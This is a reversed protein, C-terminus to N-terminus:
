GAYWKQHPGGNCQWIQLPVGNATDGDVVDVCRDVRVNVLDGAANLTFVQEWGGDCAATRLRSGDDEGTVELCRGLTRLRGDAALEFTQGATGNCDWMQIARGASTDGGPVDVCKGSGANVIARGTFVPPPGDVAAAGTAPAPKSTAPAAIETTQPRPAGAGAGDTAPVPSASGVATGTAAPTPAPRSGGPGAWVPAGVAPEEAGGDDGTSEGALLPRALLCGILVLLLPILILITLRGRGAHPGILWDALGRGAAPAAPAQEFRSRAPRAAPGASTGAGATTSSGTGGTDLGRFGFSGEVGPIASGPAATAPASASAEAGRYGFRADVTGAAPAAGTAEIREDRRQKPIAPAAMSATLEDGSSAAATLLAETEAADIRRAPDKRLLGELVPFLAGARQPPAPLETALAALTAISSSRAYPSRGEVAAYLTAGLSWLDSAPGAPEGIAREPALYAPSGLVIGTRTMGPDDEVTALGFDTLMIRGDTGLLVNAPKVDRHLVGVRHAARLAALVSLGIRAARAPTMPGEARLVSHLPQSPIFEMVIWPDGGDILVDFIRVANSHSLQAIARAERLSRERLQATEEESLGPPPVLEKVAVDRRLMEDRALWVRGMAGQGLARILTYRGALSRESTEPM